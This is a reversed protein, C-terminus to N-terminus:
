ASMYVGRSVAKIKGQKGLKFLINAVKKKNYGTQAMIADSKIGEASDRIIDLVTDAATKGGAPETPEAPAPEAPSPKAPKSAKRPTKPSVRKVKRNGKIKDKGQEQSLEGVREAVAEVGDAITKLSKALVVLIKGIEKM